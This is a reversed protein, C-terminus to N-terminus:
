TGPARAARVGRADLERGVLVRERRELLTRTTTARAAAADVAVRVHERGVSTRRREGGPVADVRGATTAPQPETATRPWTSWANQSAPSSTTWAHRENSAYGIRTRRWPARRRGPGAPRRPGARGAPSPRRPSRGSARPGPRSAWCGWRDPPGARRAALRGRRRAPAVHEDDQVLRVHLEDPLGPTARRRRRGRRADSRRAAACRRWPRRAPRRQPDPVRDVCGSTARPPASRTSAREPHVVESLDGGERREVRLGRQELPHVGDDGLASPEDGPKRPWPQSPAPCGPAVEDPQAVPAACGSTAASAAAPVAQQHPREGALASRIM